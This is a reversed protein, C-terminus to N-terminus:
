WDLASQFESRVVQWDDALARTPIMTPLLLVLALRRSARLGRLPWRLFVSM